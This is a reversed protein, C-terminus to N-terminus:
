SECKCLETSIFLCKSQCFVTWPKLNNINVLAGLYWHWTKQYYCTVKKSNMTYRPLHNLAGINKDCFYADVDQTSYFYCCFIDYRDRNFIISYVLKISAIPKSGRISEPIVTCYCHVSCQVLVPTHGLMHNTGRCNSGWHWLSRFIRSAFNGLYYLPFPKIRRPPFSLFFSESKSAFFSKEM